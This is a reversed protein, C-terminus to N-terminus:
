AVFHFLLFTNKKKIWIRSEYWDKASCDSNFFAFCFFKHSMKEVKQGRAHWTNNSHGRVIIVIQYLSSVSSVVFKM